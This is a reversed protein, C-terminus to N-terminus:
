YVTVWGQSFLLNHKTNQKTVWLCKGGGRSRETVKTRWREGERWIETWMGKFLTEHRLLFCRSIRIWVESGEKHGSTWLSLFRRTVYGSLRVETSMTLLVTRHFELELTRFMRNLNWKNRHELLVFWWKDTVRFWLSMVFWPGSQQRESKGTCMSDPEKCKSDLLLVAASDSRMEDAEQRVWM